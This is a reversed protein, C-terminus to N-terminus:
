AVKKRPPTDVVGRSRRDAYYAKPDKEFLAKRSQVQPDQARREARAIKKAEHPTPLGEARLAKNHVERMKQAAVRKAKREQGRAYSRANRKHSSHDKSLRKVVKAM